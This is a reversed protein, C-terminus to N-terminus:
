EVVILYNFATRDANPTYTIDRALGDFGLSKLNDIMEEREEIPISLPIMVEIRKGIISHQLNHKRVMEMLESYGHGSFWPNPPDLYPVGSRLNM